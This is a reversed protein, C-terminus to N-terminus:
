NKLAETYQNVSIRDPHHKEISSRVDQMVLVVIFREVVDREVSM